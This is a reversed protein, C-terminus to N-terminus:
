LDLQMFLIGILILVASFIRRVGFKEKLFVTGIIAAFLVSTERLASVSAMAGENLAFLVLAYATVALVGGVTGSLWNKRIFPGLDNKCM